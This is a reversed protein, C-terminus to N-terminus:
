KSNISIVGEGFTSDKGKEGKDESWSALLDYVQPYIEENSNIKYTEKNELLLCVLGTVHAAALSTGDDVGFRNQPKLIPIEVGPASFDIKGRSSFDAINNRKDVATVSIVKEYSAPYDVVDGYRNGAASVIIIGKNIAKNIADRLIKKDKSFGFSMNIVHVDKEISWEIGKVLNEISGNGFSDLVKVPYLEVNPSIGVIGVQNNKAAIIGAIATGHGFDDTLPIKSNITNYETHIKGQLDIHTSDIGSDLVAVRIKEKSENKKLYSSNISNNGWPIVQESYYDIKVDRHYLNSSAICFFILFGWFLIFKKIILVM